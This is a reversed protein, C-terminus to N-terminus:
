PPTLGRCRDVIALKPLLYPQFLKIPANPALFGVPVNHKFHGSFHGSAKDLSSAKAYICPQFQLLPKGFRVVPRTNHSKLSYELSPWNQALVFPVTSHPLHCIAKPICFLLCGSQM